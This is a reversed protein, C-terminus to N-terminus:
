PRRLLARDRERSLLAAQDLRRAVRHLARAAVDMLRITFRERGAHRAASQPASTRIERQRLDSLEKRFGPVM